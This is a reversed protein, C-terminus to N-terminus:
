GRMKKLTGGRRGLGGEMVVNGDPNERGRDCIVTTINKENMTEMGREWKKGTARESKSTLKYEGVVDQKGGREKM